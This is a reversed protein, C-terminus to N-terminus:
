NLDKSFARLIAKSVDYGVFRLFLPNQTLIGLSKDPSDTRQLHSQYFRRASNSVLENQADYDLMGDMIIKGSQVDTMLVKVTMRLPPFASPNLLSVYLIADCNQSLARGRVEEQTMGLTTSALLDDVAPVVLFDRGQHLTSMFDNLFVQKYSYQVSGTLPLMLVRSPIGGPYRNLPAIYNEGTVMDFDKTMENVACASLFLGLLASFLMRTKMEFDKEILYKRMLSFM